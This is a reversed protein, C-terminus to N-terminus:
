GMFEISLIAQTVQETEAYQVHPETWWLREMTFARVIAKTDPTNLTAILLSHRARCIGLM